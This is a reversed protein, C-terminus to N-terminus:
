IPPEMRKSLTWALPTPGHKRLYNLRQEGDEVSPFEGPRVYWCVNQGSGKVFWERRRLFADRHPGRMFTDLHDASEWVTMAILVTPDGDPPRVDLAYDGEAGKFRWVFGPAVDGAHHIPDLLDRFGQLEPSDIPFALNVVNYQAVQWKM